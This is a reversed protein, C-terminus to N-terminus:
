VLSFSVINRSDICLSKLLTQQGLSNNWNVIYPQRVDIELLHGWTECLYSELKGDFECEPVPIEEEFISSLIKEVSEMLQSENDSQLNLLTVQDSGFAEDSNVMNETASSKFDDFDGFDDDDELVIPINVETKNEPVNVETKNEPVKVEIENEPKKSSHEINPLLKNVINSENEDFNAQFDGFNSDDTKTEETNWPNDCNDALVAPKDTNAFQFDDFDGFDEDVELKHVTESEKIIKEELQINQVFTNDITSLEDDNEQNIELTEAFYEDVKPNDIEDEIVEDLAPPMEDIQLDDVDPPEFILESTALELSSLGEDSVINKVSVNPEKSSCDINNNITESEIGNDKTETINIREIAEKDIILNLDEINIDEQLKMKIESATNTGLSNESDRKHEDMPDNDKDKVIVKAITPVETKKNENTAAQFHNYSSFNGYDYNEDDDQSM